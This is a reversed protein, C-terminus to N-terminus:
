ERATVAWLIAGCLTTILWLQTRVWDDGLSVLAGAIGIVVIVLAALATADNWNV